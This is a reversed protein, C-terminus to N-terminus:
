ETGRRTARVEATGPWDPVLVFLLAALAASAILRSNM